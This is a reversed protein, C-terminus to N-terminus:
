ASVAIRLPPADGHSPGSGWEGFDPSESVPADPVVNWAEVLITLLNVVEALPEDLQKVNGEILRTQMYSYLGTLRATLEPSADQRLSGTLEALVSYAVNISACREEIARNRLHVRADRVSAIARQYLIRILEVPSASLIMQEFYISM